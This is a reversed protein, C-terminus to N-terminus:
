KPLRRIVAADLWDDRALPQLQKDVRRLSKTRSQVTALGSCDAIRRAGAKKRGFREAAISIATRGEGVLIPQGFQQTRNAYVPLAAVFVLIHADPHVRPKVRDLSGNQDLLQFYKRLLDRQALAHRPAVGVREPTGVAHTGRMHDL